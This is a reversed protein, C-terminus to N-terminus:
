FPQSVLLLGAVLGTRRDNWLRGIAWVLLVSAVTPVLSLARGFVLFRRASDFSGDVDFWNFFPRLAYYYWPTHHEFFDKYPVMGKFVSWAAHSHEFEDPDFSRNTLLPIRALFFAVTALWFLYSRRTEQRM